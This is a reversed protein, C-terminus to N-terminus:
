GLHRYCFDGIWNYVHTPAKGILWKAAPSIASNQPSLESTTAIGQGLSGIFQILSEEVTAWRRKYELLGVNSMATRGFSFQKAGEAYARLITEWYLLQNVGPIACEKNGSYESTWLDRFLLVLHCAIYTGEHSALFIKLHPGLTRSLSEFFLLPMPPLSLRRRTDVLISHCIRLAENDFREEVVVGSRRARNVKQRISTKACTAYLTDIGGELNLYHHKYAQYPNLFSTACLEPVKLSRIEIRRSKSREAFKQVQALLLQFEEPTSILPDCFSAFPISVIRNGLLWSKVTYVPLGAQIEGTDPHTLALFNGRIHPFADELARRWASLHYVLGLRHTAVFTDWRTDDEPSLWQVNLQM